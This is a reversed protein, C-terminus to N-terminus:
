PGARRCGRPRHLPKRRGAGPRHSRRQAAPRRRATAPATRGATLGRSERRVWARAREPSATSFAVTTHMLYPFPHARLLLVCPDAGSIRAWARGLGLLLAATDVAVLGSVASRRREPLWQNRRRASPPPQPM